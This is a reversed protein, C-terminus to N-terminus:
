DKKKMLKNLRQAIVFSTLRVTMDQLALGRYNTLLKKSGKKHLLKLIATNWEEYELDRNNWFNQILTILVDQSDAPLAKLAEVSVGSEGPAKNNKM